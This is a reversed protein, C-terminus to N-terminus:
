TIKNLVKKLKIVMKRIEIDKLDLTDTEILHIVEKIISVQNRSYCGKQINAIDPINGGALHKLSSKLIVQGTEYSNKLDEESIPKGTMSNVLREAIFNDLRDMSVQVLNSVESRKMKMELLRVAIIRKEYPSLPQGHSINARVAEQYIKNRNWGTHIIAKVKKLGLQRVAEVRHKGDVLYLKKNLLALIIPPFKAGTVMSEKYDVITMWNSRARPYLEDDFTIDSINILKNVTKVM